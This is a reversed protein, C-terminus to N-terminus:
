NEIEKRREKLDKVLSSTAYLIFDDLEDDKMYDKTSILKYRIVEQTM